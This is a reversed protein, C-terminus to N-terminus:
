LLFHCLIALNKEKQLKFFRQDPDIVYVRHRLGHPVSFLPLFAQSYKVLLCVNQFYLLSVGRSVFLIFLGLMEFLLSNISFSLFTLSLRRSEISCSSTPSIILYRLIHNNVSSAHQIIM